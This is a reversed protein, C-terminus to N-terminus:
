YWEWLIRHMSVLRWPLTLFISSRRGFSTVSVSTVAEPIQSCRAWWIRPMRQSIVLIGMGPHSHRESCGTWSLTTHTCGRSRAQVALGIGRICSHWRIQQWPYTMTFRLVTWTRLMLDWTDVSLPTPVSTANDRQWGTSLGRMTMRHIMGLIYQRM